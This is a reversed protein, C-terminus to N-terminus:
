RSMVAELAGNSPMSKNRQRNRALNCAAMARAGFGVAPIVVVLAKPASDTGEINGGKEVGACATHNAAKEEIGNREIWRFFIRGCCGRRLRLGFPLALAGGL